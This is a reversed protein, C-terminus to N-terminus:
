KRAAEAEPSTKRPNTEVPSAKGSSYDYEKISQISRDLYALKRELEQREREAQAIKKAKMAQDYQEAASMREKNQGPQM